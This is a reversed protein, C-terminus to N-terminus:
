GLSAPNINTALPQCRSMSLLDSLLACGCCTTLISDLDLVGADRVLKMDGIFTKNMWSFNSFQIGGEGCICNDVYWGM